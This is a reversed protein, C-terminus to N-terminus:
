KLKVMYCFEENTQKKYEVIHRSVISQVRISQVRFGKSMAACIEGFIDASMERETEVPREERQTVQEQSGKASSCCNCFHSLAVIRYDPQTEKCLLVNALTSAVPCRDVIFIETPTM